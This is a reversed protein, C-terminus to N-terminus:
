NIKAERFKKLNILFFKWFLLQQNSCSNVLEDHNDKDITWVDNNDMDNSRKMTTQGRDDLMTTKREATQKGTRREPGDNKERKGL